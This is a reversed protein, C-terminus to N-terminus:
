SPNANYLEFSHQDDCNVTIQTRYYWRTLLCCSHCLQNYPQRYVTRPQSVLRLTWIWYKSLQSKIFDVKPWTPASTPGMASKVSLFVKNPVVTACSLSLVRWCECHVWLSVLSAWPKFVSPLHNSVDPVRCVIMIVPSFVFPCSSIKVWPCSLCSVSFLFCVWVTVSEKRQTVARLQLAVKSLYLIFVWHLPYFHKQWSCLHVTITSHVEM